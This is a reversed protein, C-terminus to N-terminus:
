GQALCAEQGENEGEPGEVYFKSSFFPPIYPLLNPSPPAGLIMSHGCEWDGTELYSNMGQVKRGM